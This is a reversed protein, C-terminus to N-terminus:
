WWGTAAEWGSEVLDGASSAIDGVTDAAESVTETVHRPNVTVQWGAEVGLGAALLFNGGVGFGGEENRGINFSAEAGVGVAVGANASATTGDGFDAAVDASAKGGVFAGANASAGNRNVSAGVDAEGGVFASLGGTAEVGGLEAEGEARADLLYAKGEAKAEIGEGSFAVEAEGSVGVVKAEAEGEVELPGLHREGSEFKKEWLNGEGEKDVLVWKAGDDSIEIEGPSDDDDDDDDDRITDAAAAVNVLWGPSDDGRGSHSALLEATQAGSVDVQERAYALLQQAQMRLPEGPDQFQPLPTLGALVEPQAAAAAYESRARDSAAEGEDWLDIAEQARGQARSLVEAHRTLADAAAAMADNGVQWRVPEAPFQEWFADSAAGSWRPTRIRRLGDGIEGMQSAQVALMTAAESVLEPRGPILERADRTQGLQAGFLEGLRDFLSMLGGAM